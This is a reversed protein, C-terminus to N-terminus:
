HAQSGQSEQNQQGAVQRSSGADRKGLCQDPIGICCGPPGISTIYAPPFMYDVIGDGSSEIEASAITQHDRIQVPIAIFVDDGHM